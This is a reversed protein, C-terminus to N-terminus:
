DKVRPYYQRNQHYEEVRRVTGLLQTMKDLTKKNQPDQFFRAVPESVEVLDKYHRRSKRSNHLKTCIKSREKANSEFEIAHLFDQLRKEEKKMNELSLEYLHRNDDVFDLFSKIQESVTM